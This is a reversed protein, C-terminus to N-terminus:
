CEDETRESDLKLSVLGEALQTKTGRTTKFWDGLGATPTEADVKAYVEFTKGTAEPLTLVTALVTALDGPNIRGIATDGSTVSLDGSPHTANIGCARVVTYPVGSARLRDEGKLKTGLIGLPNLKVIPINAAESFRAAKAEPWSPRTVAASSLLVIKPLVGDPKAGRRKKWIEAAKAPGRVDLARGTLQGIKFRLVRGLLNLKSKGRPGSFGTACWIVRDCSAMARALEKSRGLNAERIVVRGQNDKMLKGFAEEGLTVNRVIAVVTSGPVRKIIEEVVLRGVRGTAGAVMVRPPNAHMEKQGQERLLNLTSLEVPDMQAMAMKTGQARASALRFQGDPAACVSAVRQAGRLAAPSSLFANAAPNLSAALLVLLGCVQAPARFM